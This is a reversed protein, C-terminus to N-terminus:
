GRSRSSIDSTSSVFSVAVLVACTGGWLRIMPVMDSVDTGRAWHPLLESYMELDHAGVDCCRRLM